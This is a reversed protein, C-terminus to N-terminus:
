KQIKNESRKSEFKGNIEEESKIVKRFQKDFTRTCPGGSLFCKTKKCHINLKPDCEYSINM